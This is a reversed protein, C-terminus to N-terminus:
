ELKFNVSLFLLTNVYKNNKEGARWKPMSRLVRKIENDCENCLKKEIKIQEIRGCKTVVFSVIVKGQVDIESPYKINSYIYELATDFDGTQFKPLEDVELYLLVTSDNYLCTNLCNSQAFLAFGNFFALIFVTLIKM